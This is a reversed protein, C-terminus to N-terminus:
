SVEMLAVGIDISSPVQVRFAMQAIADGSSVSGSDDVDWHVWITYDRLPDLPEDHDLVVTFPENADAPPVAQTSALTVSPADLETTDRLEVRVAGEDLLSPATSRDITVLVQM